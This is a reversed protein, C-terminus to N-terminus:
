GLGRGSPSPIAHWGDTGAADRRGLREDEPGSFGFGLKAGQRRM